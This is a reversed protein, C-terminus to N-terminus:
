LQKVDKLGLARTALTHPTGGLAKTMGDAKQQATGVYKLTIVGKDVLERVHHHKVDIHKSLPFSVPKRAIAIASLNDVFITIPEKQKFMYLETLYQRLWQVEAATESM